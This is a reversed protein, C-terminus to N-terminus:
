ISKKGDDRHLSFCFFVCVSFIFFHKPSSFLCCLSVLFWFLIVCNLSNWNVVCIIILTVLSILALELAIDRRAEVCLAPVMPKAPSPLIPPKMTLM